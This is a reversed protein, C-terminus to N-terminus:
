FRVTVSARLYDNEDYCGLEGSNKGGFFGGSLEFAVEDRTWVAAPIIYYNQDEVGVIATTKLELEDRFFKKSAIATIRTKTVDTADEFDFAETGVGDDMLRVSGTGQLNLNVGAFLDRDFGLSWVISPNYVAPDEGTFDDTLNTGLEARLNMGAVVAACDVGIQHFRNHLTEVTLSTGPVLTVKVSPRRLCGYFYQAGFDVSGVTTTFRLGAQSNGLGDTDEEVRSIGSLPIGYVPVLQRMASELETMVGPVWRGDSAFREGEFSPLYVAEIRTMPALSYSLRVLPRAIKRELEDVITLDSQDQPNIVDLPGQSDARGWTLKRLGAEVDAKGLYARVYAEDITFPSDGSESNEAEVSLFADARNGTVTLDLEGSFLDGLDFVEREDPDRLTDLFIIGEASLEGSLRVPAATDPFSATGSGGSSEPSDPDGFGFGPVDQAILFGGFLILICICAFVRSRGTM